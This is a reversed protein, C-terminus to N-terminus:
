HDDIDYEVDIADDSDAKHSQSSRYDGSQSSQSGQQSYMQQGIQQAMSELEKITSELEAYDKREISKRVKEIEKTLKSKLNGDIASENEKIVKEIDRMKMLLNKLMM